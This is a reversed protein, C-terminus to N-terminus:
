RRAGHTFQRPALGLRDLCDGRADVRQHRRARAVGRRLPKLSAPDATQGSSFLVKGLPPDFSKMLSEIEGRPIAAAISPIAEDHVRYATHCTQQTEQTTALIIVGDTGPAADSRRFEDEANM